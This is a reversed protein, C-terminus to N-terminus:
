QIEKHKALAIADEILSIEFDSKEIELAEIFEKNKKFTKFLLKEDNEELVIGYFLNSLLLVIEKNQIKQGEFYSDFDHENVKSQLGLIPNILLQTSASMLNLYAGLSYQQSETMQDYDEGFTKVQEVANKLDKTENEVRLIREKLEITALDYLKEDRVAIYTFIDELREKENHAKIYFLGSGLISVAAITWGIPGALALLAKGAAMGGGGLALAGGGLWALAANTAAAGTLSSIAVGTSAVGFTTAIGMAVTPGLTVVAVGLGAGAVGKGANKISYDNYDKEIKEAQQKWCLTKEKISNYEFKTETPVNRIKDFLVQMNNLNEYLNSACVGLEEIKRNVVEVAIEAEERAKQLRSKKKKM